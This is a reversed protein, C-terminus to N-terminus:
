PRGGRTRAQRRPMPTAARVCCRRVHDLALARALRRDPRGRRIAVFEDAVDVLPDSRRLDEAVVSFAAREDADLLEEADIAATVLEEVIEDRSLDLLRDIAGTVRGIVVEGLDDDREVTIAALLEVIDLTVSTGGAAYRRCAAVVDRDITTLSLVVETPGQTEAPSARM